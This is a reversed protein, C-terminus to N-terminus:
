APSHYIEVAEVHRQADLQVVIDAYNPTGSLMHATIREFHAIFRELQSDTMIGTGAEGAAMAHAASRQLAHEQQQRFAHVAPIDPAALFLLMDLENWVASYRGTLEANVYGRFAGDRDENTELANIPARLEDQTQPRAGVCWGELLVIDFPGEHRTTNARREDTAKDFHVLEVWEGATARRAAKLTSHLSEIEHTGPVGRTVLLPHVLQALETRAAKTLYYDDLSILLTRAGFGQVLLTQLLAALTSKGTGQAGSLGVLKCARAEAVITQAIPLCLTELWIDREHEDLALQRQDMVHRLTDRARALAAHGSLMYTM